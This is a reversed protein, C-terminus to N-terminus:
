GDADSVEASCAERPSPQYRPSTMGRVISFPRPMLGVRWSVKSYALPWCALSSMACAVAWVSPPFGDCTMKPSSPIDGSGADCVCQLATGPLLGMCGSKHRSGAPVLPPVRVETSCRSAICSGSRCPYCWMVSAMGVLWMVLISTRLRPPRGAKPALRM